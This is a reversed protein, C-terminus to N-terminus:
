ARSAYIIGHEQNFETKYGLDELFRTFKQRGFKSLDEHWEISMSRIRSFLEKPANMLIDEEAGECDMKMFDCEEIQNAQFVDELTIARVTMSKMTTPDGHPHISGGGTDHDQMYFTFEGRKGAVAVNFPYIINQLTNLDINEKLTEFNPKFPEYSFVKVNPAATAAKITFVGIQTGIDVISSGEKIYSLLPDYVKENWVENLIRIDSTNTNLVYGVGNWFWINIKKDSFGGLREAYYLLPNRFSVLAFFFEKVLRM